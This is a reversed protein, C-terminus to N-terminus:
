NNHGIDDSVVRVADTFPAVAFLERAPRPLRAICGEIATVRKSDPVLWLSKPFVGREAQEIGSAEYEAYQRLKRELTRSGETGMDVEIFYSDEFDGVGLRVYSDPKLTARQGYSRWCAPESELALLEVKGARDAQMLLTHLEAVQLAHGLYLSGPIHSQRRHGDPQWGRDVALRQGAQGLRYIFGASGSRVGGVQRPLRELCGLRVLRLLTRSAARAQAAASGSGAFHMRTLQSGTVFRLESVRQLIALDRETLQGCLERVVAGTVYRGSM